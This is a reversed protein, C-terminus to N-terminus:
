YMFLTTRKTCQKQVVEADHLRSYMVRDDISRVNIKNKNQNLKSTFFINNNRRKNLFQASFFTLKKEPDKQKNTVRIACNLSFYM